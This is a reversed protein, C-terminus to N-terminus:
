YGNLQGMYKPYCLCGTCERGNNNNRNAWCWLVYFICMHLGYEIKGKEMRWGDHCNFIAPLYIYICLDRLGAVGFLDRLGAVGYRELLVDWRVVRLFLLFWARGSVELWAGYVLPGNKRPSTGRAWRQFVERVSKNRKKRLGSRQGKYVDKSM